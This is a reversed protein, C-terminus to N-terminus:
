EGGEVDENGKIAAIEMHTGDWNFIMKVLGGSALHGELGVMSFQLDKPVGYVTLACEKKLPRAEGCGGGEIIDVKKAKKIWDCFDGFKGRDLAPLTGRYFEMDSIPTWRKWWVWWDYAQDLTIWRRRHELRAARCGQCTGAQTHLHFRIEERQSM